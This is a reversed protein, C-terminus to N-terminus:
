FPKFFTTPSMAVGVAYLLLSWLIFFIIGVIIAAAIVNFIARLVSYKQVEALANIYIVLSWIALIVKIILIVFLVFVLPTSLQHANPLNLFLQHGFILVMLLWLPINLTIPVCSWAYAARIAKFEGQGKFLKGVWSVFWSWISFSIYGYFPAIVIALVLIAFTRLSSGLAMSQCLNMMSSFGYIFALWWLSRNPNEATIRAITARPETWISLWPSKNEEM